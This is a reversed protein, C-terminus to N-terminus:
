AAGAIAATIMDIFHHAQNTPIEIVDQGNEIVLLANDGGDIDSGDLISVTVLRHSPSTCFDTPM